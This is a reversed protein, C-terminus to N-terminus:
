EVECDEEHSDKRRKTFFDKGCYECNYQPGRDKRAYHTVDSM